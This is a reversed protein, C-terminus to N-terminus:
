TPLACEITNKIKTKEHVVNCMVKSLVNPDYPNQHPAALTYIIILHGM